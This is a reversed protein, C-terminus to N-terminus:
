AGDHFVLGIERKIVVIYDYWALRTVYRRIIYIYWAFSAIKTQIFSVRYRYEDLM